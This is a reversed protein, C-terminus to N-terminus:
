RTTFCLYPRHTGKDNRQIYCAYLALWRAWGAENHTHTPPCAVVCARAFVCGGSKGDLRLSVIATNVKLAAAMQTMGADGIRNGAHLLSVDPWCRSLLGLRRATAHPHATTHAHAHAHAHTRAHSDHPCTKRAHTQAHRTHMHEHMRAQAQAHTCAFCALM